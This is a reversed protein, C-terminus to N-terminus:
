LMPLAFNDVYIICYIFQNSCLDLIKFNGKLQVDFMLSDLMCTNVFLGSVYSKPKFYEFLRKHPNFNLM